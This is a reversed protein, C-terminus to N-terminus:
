GISKGGRRDPKSELTLDHPIQTACFPVPAFKRRTSRNGRGIKKGKVAEYENIVGDDVIYLRSLSLTMLYAVYSHIYRYPKWLMVYRVALKVLYLQQDNM